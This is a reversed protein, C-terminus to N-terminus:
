GLLYSLSTVILFVALTGQILFKNKWDWFLSYIASALIVGYFFPKAPINEPICLCVVYLTTQIFFFMNAIDRKLRQKFKEKEIAPDKQVQDESSKMLEEKFLLTALLTKVTRLTGHIAWLTLFIRAWRRQHVAIQEFQSCSNM